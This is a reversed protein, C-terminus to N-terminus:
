GNELMLVICIGQCLIVTENLEKRQFGARCECSYGELKNSCTATDNDGCQYGDANCEDIDSVFV